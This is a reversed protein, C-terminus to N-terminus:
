QGIMGFDNLKMDNSNIRIKKRKTKKKNKHVPQPSREFLVPSSMQPSLAQSSENVTNMMKSQAFGELTIPSSLQCPSKLAFLEEKKNKLNDKVLDADFENEFIVNARKEAILQTNGCPKSKELLDRPHQLVVLVRKQTECFRVTHMTGGKIGTEIVFIGLSLGSQIRDRDVFHNRFIRTGLPYESILQLTWLCAVM